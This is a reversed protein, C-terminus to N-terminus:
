AGARRGSVKVSKQAAGSALRAAGVLGADNGLAARVISVAGRTFQTAPALRENMAGAFLEFHQEMMGGGLVLRQPLLTHCITWAATAAASTARALVERARAEGAAAAAFVARADACGFARGAAGIATGSALSELCGRTGCYCGPGAADVPVHGLEPHEGQAGRYIRGDVVVGGGIGTGFTLMVVPSCGRGAGAFCEGMAAADADNELCVPVGFRERLPTVIDCQDWGGLTYPNHILGRLPDLPGTCGIGIGSLDGAGCGAQELLKAIGQGLRDVARPFGLEAETALVIRNLIHGQGDVSAIAMKTGGIDIGIAPAQAKM